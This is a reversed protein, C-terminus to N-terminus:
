IECLRQFFGANASSITVIKKSCPICAAYTEELKDQFAAEDIVSITPVYSRVQDKGQALGRMKSGNEFFMHGFPMDRLKRDLPCLKKLWDPQHDYIFKGREILAHADEEKKSFVAALRYENFQCEHLVLAIALWSIQMQRSKAIHLIDSENWTQVIPPIYPKLPFPKIAKDGKELDAREDHTWVFKELWFLKDRKCKEYLLSNEYSTLLQKKATIDM